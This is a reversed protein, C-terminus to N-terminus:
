LMADLFSDLRISVKYPFVAHLTFHSLFTMIVKASCHLIHTTVTEGVEYDSGRVYKALASLAAKILLM